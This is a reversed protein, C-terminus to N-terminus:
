VAGRRRSATPGRSSLTVRGDFIKEPLYGVALTGVRLDVCLEFFSISLVGLEFM